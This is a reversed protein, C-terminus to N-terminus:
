PYLHLVASLVASDGSLGQPVRCNMNESLGWLLTLSHGIGLLSRHHQHVTKEATRCGDCLVASSLLSRHRLLLSALYCHFTQQKVQALLSGLTEEWVSEKYVGPCHVERM